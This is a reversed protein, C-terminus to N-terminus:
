GLSGNISLSCPFSFSFSSSANSRIAAVSLSILILFHFILRFRFLSFPFLLNIYRGLGSPCAQFRSILFSLRCSRLLAEWSLAASFLPQLTQQKNESSIKTEGNYKGNAHRKFPTRGGAFLTPKRRERTQNIAERARNKEREDAFLSISFRIMIFIKKRQRQATDTKSTTMQNSKRPPKGTVRKYQVKCQTKFASTVTCLPPTRMGAM